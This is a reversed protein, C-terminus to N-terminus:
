IINYQMFEYEYNLLDEDISKVEISEKVTDNSASYQLNLTIKEKLGFMGTYYEIVTKSVNLQMLVVDENVKFLPLVISEKSDIYKINFVKTDENSITGEYFWNGIFSIKVNYMPNNGINKIVKFIYRNHEALSNIHTYLQNMNVLNCRNNRIDEFKQILTQEDRNILKNILNYEPTIIIKNGNLINRLSSNLNYECFILSEEIFTRSSKLLSEEENRTIRDQIIKNENQIDRTQKVTIFVAILTSIGGLYSGWFSTWADNSAKSPFNNEIILFYILLPSLIVFITPLIYWLLSMKKQKKQSSKKM